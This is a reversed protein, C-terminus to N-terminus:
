TSRDHFNMSKARPVAADVPKTTVPFAYTPASAKAERRAKNMANQAVICWVILPIGIGAPSLCLGVVGVVWSGFRSLGYAENENAKSLKAPILSPSQVTVHVNAPIAAPPAPWCSEVAMGRQAALHEAAQQTGAEVSMQADGGDAKWAGRVDWLSM